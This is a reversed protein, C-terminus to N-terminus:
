AELLDKAVLDVLPQPFSGKLLIPDVVLNLLNVVMALLQAEKIEQLGEMLNMHHDLALHTAVEKDLFDEKTKDLHDTEQIRVAMFYELLYVMQHEPTSNLDELGLDKQKVEEMRELTTSALLLGVM